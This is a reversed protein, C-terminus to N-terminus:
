EHTVFNTTLVLYNFIDMYTTSPLLDADATADSGISLLYPDVDDCMQVRVEYRTRAAGILENFYLQKFGGPKIKVMTRLLSTVLPWCALPMAVAARRPTPVWPPLWTHRFCIASVDCQPLSTVHVSHIRLEWGSHCAKYGSYNWRTLGMVFWDILKEKKNVVHTYLCDM